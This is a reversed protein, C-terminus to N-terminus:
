ALLLGGSVNLGSGLDGGEEFNPVKKAQATDGDGTVVSNEERGEGVEGLGGVTVSSDGIEVPACLEIM